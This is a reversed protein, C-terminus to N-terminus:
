RAARRLRTRALLSPVEPDALLADRLEAETTHALLAHLWTEADGALYEAWAPSSRWALVRDTITSEPGHPLAARSRVLLSRLAEQLPLDAARERLDELLALHFGTRIEGVSSVPVTTAALRALDLPADFAEEGLALAGCARLAALTRLCKECRGCNPGGVHGDTLEAFCVRLRPLVWAHERALLAVKEHRRLDMGATTIAVASGGTWRDLYPHYKATERAVQLEGYSVEGPVLFREARDALLHAIATPAIAYTEDWIGGLDRVVVKRVNSDVEIPELGLAAADAALREGDRARREPAPEEEDIGHLYVIARLRERHALAAHWSDVGGSFAAAWGRGPRPVRPPAVVAAEIPVPRTARWVRITAWRRQAEALNALVDASVADDVRLTTGLRMAHHVLLLALADGPREPPGSAPYGIRLESSVDGHRVPATLEVRGGAHVVRAPGVVLPAPSPPPAAGAALPRALVEDVAQALPEARGAAALTRGTGDLLIHEVIGLPPLALLAAQDVADPFTTADRLAGALELDLM